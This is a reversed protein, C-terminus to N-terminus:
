QEQRRETGPEEHAAPADPSGGSGQIEICRVNLPIGRAEETQAFMETLVDAVQRCTALTPFRETEIEPTMGTSLTVVVLMWEM